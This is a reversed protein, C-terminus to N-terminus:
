KVEIKKEALKFIEWIIACGIVPSIYDAVLGRFTSDTWAESTFFLLTGWCALLGTLALPVIRIWWFKCNRLFLIQISVAPIMRLIAAIVPHRIGYPMPWLLFALPIVIGLGCWLNATPNNM